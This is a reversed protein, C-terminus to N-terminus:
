RSSSVKALRVNGGKDNQSEPSGVALIRMGALLLNIAANPDRDHIVGCGGCTWQRDSLELHQRHNCPHCTQSSPFFRDVKVIRCRNWEAKDVLMRVFAGLSADTFSKALKTKVLGKLNWDEICLTDYRSILKSSLKHLWDNRQNRVRAHYVALVKKRKYRRRSTKHSRSVARQLRKLSREAKRSFKPPKVKEGNDLTFFSELGVDIGVPADWVPEVDPLEIHSIFCLYWHGNPEQKITASKITGEMERHLRAKVLGVKPVSVRDEVVTVNQPIRFANPTRKRSKFRPFKTRKAFFSVFAKDWDMLTQQLAQSHCEKLFATEPQKKLAVLESALANYCLTKGTEKYVAQKRALAWNWIFRRCGAFRLFEQEQQRTPDLRFKYTKTTIM